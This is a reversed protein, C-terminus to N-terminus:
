HSQSLPTLSLNHEFISLFKLPFCPAFNGAVACLYEMTFIARSSAKKSIKWSSALGTSPWDSSYFSLFIFLWWVYTVKKNLVRLIKIEACAQVFTNYFTINTSLFAHQWTAFAKKLLNSSPECGLLFNGFHGFFQTKSLFSQSDIPKYRYKFLVRSIASLTIYSQAWGTM